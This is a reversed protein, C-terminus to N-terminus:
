RSLYSEQFEKDMKQVIKITRIQAEQILEQDHFVENPFSSTYEESFQSRKENLTKFEIKKKEDPDNSNYLTQLKSSFDNCKGQIVDLFEQIPTLDKM